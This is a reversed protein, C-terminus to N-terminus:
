KHIVKKVNSVGNTKVNIFYVGSPLKNGDLPKQYVGPGYTKSELLGITEGLMNMVSISIDQTQDVSFEITASNTFPNPFVDFGSIKSM